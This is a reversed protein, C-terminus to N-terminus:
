QEDSHVHPHYLWAAVSPLAVSFSSYSVTAARPHQFWAMCFSALSKQAALRYFHGLHHAAVDLCRFSRTDKAFNADRRVERCRIHCLRIGDLAM